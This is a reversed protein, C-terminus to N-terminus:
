ISMLPPTQACNLSSMMKCIAKTLWKLNTIAISKLSKRSRFSLERTRNRRKSFSKSNKPLTSKRHCAIASTMSLKKRRFKQIFILILLCYNFYSSSVTSIMSKIIKLYKCNQSSLVMEYTNVTTVREVIDNRLRLKKNDVKIKPIMQQSVINIMDPTTQIDAWPGSNANKYPENDPQWDPEM